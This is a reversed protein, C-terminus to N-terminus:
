IAADLLKFTAKYYTKTVGVTQGSEVAFDLKFNSFYIKDGPLNMLTKPIRVSLTVGWWNIIGFPDLNQLRQEPIGITLHEPLATVVVNGRADKIYFRLSAGVFSTSTFNEGQIYTSLALTDGRYPEPLLKIM